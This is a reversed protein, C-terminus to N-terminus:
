GRRCGDAPRGAARLLNEADKREFTDIESQLDGAIAALADRFIKAATIIAALRDDVGDLPMQDFNLYNLGSAHTFISSGAVLHTIPQSVTREKRLFYNSTKKFKEIQTQHYRACLADDSDM